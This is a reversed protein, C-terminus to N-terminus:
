RTVVVQRSTFMHGSRVRVFYVGPAVRNGDADRLDWDLRRELSPSAVSTWARVRRGAVDTVAVSVHTDAGRLRLSVSVRAPNPWPPALALPAAPAPLPVDATPALAAADDRDFAIQYPPLGTGLPGAVLAEDGCRFVYLGAADFGGRCLWLEDRAPSVAMDNLEFGGPAYVTSLKQGTVASWSVLVTNFDDDSVIAFSHGPLLFAVDGVDGGLAQETAVFGASSWRPLTPDIVDCTRCLPIAEIGGDAV